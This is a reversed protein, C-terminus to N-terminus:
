TISLAGQKDKHKFMSLWGRKKEKEIPTPKPISEEIEKITKEYMYIKIATLYDEDITRFHEIQEKKVYENYSILELYEISNGYAYYRINFWDKDQELIIGYTSFRDKISFRYIYKRGTKIKM